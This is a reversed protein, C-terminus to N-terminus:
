PSRLNLVTFWKHSLIEELQIRKKPKEQLLARLLRCCEKSLGTKFCLHLKLMHLDLFDPFYGAVIRFLLVGLSWVTAPKDHYKGKIHFEPPSYIATGCYSMYVTTRLIDGCGFDILKVERTENNILLNNLKIDRHFVQRQCCVNAAQAAQRMVQRALSENLSGGQRRVFDELTECPSPCELIMVFHDDYDKWDLLQIIEPARPGKNALITLAIEMPLLQRYGPICLGEKSHKTKDVYKVAVKLDDELRRAEYVVGFGDKGLLDGLQYHSFIFDDSCRAKREKQPKAEERQQEQQEQVQEQQLEVEGKSEQGNGEGADVATEDRPHPHQEETNPSHKPPTSLDCAHSDPGRNALINLAIEEPLRHPYGLIYLGEVDEDTKNLHKVSVEPDDELRRAEAGSGGEGLQDGRHKHSVTYDDSCRAKCESQPKVRESQEQEQQLEVEGQVSNWSGKLHKKLAGFFSTLRWWKKKKKVKEIVKSGQGNGEGADVTTEHPHQEETNSSTTYRAPIWIDHLLQRNNKVPNHGRTSVFLMLLM